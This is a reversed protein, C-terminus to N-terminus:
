NKVIEKLTDVFHMLILGSQCTLNWAIQWFCPSIVAFKVNMKETSFNPIGNIVWKFRLTTSTEFIEKFFQNDGVVLQYM